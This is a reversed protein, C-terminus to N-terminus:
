ADRNWSEDRGFGTDWRWQWQGLLLQVSALWVLLSIAANRLLVPVYLGGSHEPVMRALYDAYSGMPTLYGGMLAHAALVLVVWPWFRGPLAQAQLARLGLLVFVVWVPLVYLFLRAKDAGGWLCALAMLTYGLLVPERRLVHLAERYRLLLLAPLLGLGSFVDQLFIPWFDPMALKGLERFLNWHEGLDNATVFQRLLWLPLMAALVVAMALLWRRSRPMATERWLQLLPVCSFLALSEKQLAGLALLVPLWAYQRMRTLLLILLLFLQTQYDIYAPMYFSAKLTWFVGAYLGLGVVCLGRSFGLRRLWQLLVLLCLVDSVFALVRFNDLTEWPLQAALWPTLVRYCWPAMHAMEPPFSDDGTRAATMAGYMLGDADFGQYNETLPTSFWVAAVLLLVGLLAVMGVAARHMATSGM